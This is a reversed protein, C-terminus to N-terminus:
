RRGIVESFAMVSIPIVCVFFHGAVQDSMRQISARLQQAAMHVTGALVAHAGVKDARLVLAGRTNATDGTFSHCASKSVPMNGSTPMSKDVASGGELVMGDVLVKECLRVSQKNRTPM